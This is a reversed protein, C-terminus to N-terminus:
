RTFNSAVRYSKIGIGEFCPGFSFGVIEDAFHWSHYHVPIGNLHLSFSDTLYQNVSFGEKTVIWSHRHLINRYGDDVFDLKEVLFTVLSNKGAKIITLGDFGDINDGFLFNPAAFKSLEICAVSSIVVIKQSSINVKEFARSSKRDK